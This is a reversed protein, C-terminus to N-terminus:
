SAGSGVEAKNPLRAVVAPFTNIHASALTVGGSQRYRLDEARVDELTDSSRMALDNRLARRLEHELAPWASACSMDYRGSVM